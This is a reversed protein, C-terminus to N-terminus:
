SDGGTKQDVLNLEGEQPGDTGEIIMRGKEGEGTKTVVFTAKSEGIQGEGYSYGDSVPGLRKHTLRIEGVEIRMRAKLRASRIPWLGLSEGGSVPNLCVRQPEEGDHRQASPSDGLNLNVDKEITETVNALNVQEAIEFFRQKFSSRVLDVLSGCSSGDELFVEVLPPPGLTETAGAEPEECDVEIELPTLSIMKVYIAGLKNIVDGGDFDDPLDEPAIPTAGNEEAKERADKSFGAESVLVLKNSPLRTHKMLMSEVWTVDAKRGAATAEIALILKHGASITEIIVDVERESGTDSDILFGSEDVTAEAAIAQHLVRVVKQFLNSRQPM